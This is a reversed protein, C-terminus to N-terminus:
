CSFYIFFLFIFLLLFFKYYPSHHRIMSVWPFIFRAMAGPSPKRLDDASFVPCSIESESLYAGLPPDVKMVYPLAFLAYFNAPLFGYRFNTNNNYSM